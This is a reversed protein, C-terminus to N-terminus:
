IEKRQKLLKTSRLLYAKICINTKLGIKGGKSEAAKRVRAVGNGNM